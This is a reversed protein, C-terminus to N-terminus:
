SQLKSGVAVCGWDLLIRPTVVSGVDEFDHICITRLILFRSKGSPRPYVVIANRSITTTAVKKVSMKQKSANLQKALLLYHCCSLNMDLQPSAM